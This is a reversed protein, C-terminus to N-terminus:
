KDQLLQDLVHEARRAAYQASSGSESVAPDNERRRAYSDSLRYGTGAPTHRGKGRNFGDSGSGGGQQYGGRDWNSMQVKIVVKGILNQITRKLDTNWNVDRDSQFHHNAHNLSSMYKECSEKFLAQLHPEFREVSSVIGSARGYINELMKELQQLGPASSGGQGRRSSTQQRQHSNLCFDVIQSVLRTGLEKDAGPQHHQIAALAVFRLAYSELDSLGELRPILSLCKEWQNGCVLTDFWALSANESARTKLGNLYLRTAVEWLQVGDQSGKETPLLDLGKRQYSLVRLLLAYVAPNFAQKNQLSSALTLTTRWDTARSVYYLMTRIAYAHPTQPGERAKLDFLQFASIAKLWSARAGFHMLLVITERSLSKISIDFRAFATLAEEWRSYDDRDVNAFGQLVAYVTLEDVQLNLNKTALQLLEALVVERPQRSHGRLQRQVLTCFAAVADKPEPRNPTQRIRLWHDAAEEKTLTVGVALIRLTPGLALQPLTLGLVKILELLGDIAPALAATSASALQFKSNRVSAGARQEALLATRPDANMLAQSFHIVITELKPGLLPFNPDESLRAIVQLLRVIVKSLVPPPLLSAEEKLRAALAAVITLSNVSSAHQPPTPSPSPNGAGTPGAGEAVPKKDASEEVTRELFPIVVTLAHRWSVKASVTAVHGPARLFTALSESATGFRAAEEWAGVDYLKMWVSYELPLNRLAAQDRWSTLLRMLQHVPESYSLGGKHCELLQTLLHQIVQAQAQRDVQTVGASSDVDATASLPLGTTPKTVSVNLVKSDHVATELALKVTRPWRSVFDQCSALRSNADFGPHNVLCVVAREWDGKASLLRQLLHVVLTPEGRIERAIEAPKMDQVVNLLLKARLTPFKAGRLSSSGQPVHSSSSITSSSFRDM